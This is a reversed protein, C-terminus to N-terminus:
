ILEVVKSVRRWFNYHLRRAHQLLNQEKPSLLEYTRQHEILYDLYDEIEVADKLSAGYKEKWYLYVDRRLIYLAREFDPEHALDFDTAWCNDKHWGHASGNVTPATPTEITM